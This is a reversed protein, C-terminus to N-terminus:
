SRGGVHIFTDVRLGLPIQQGADLEILTELIKTDVRETPEDTRINKRGLIEGIRVVRGTFKRDGYAEATVHATQGVAIRAVDTEDVDARIRLKSIDGLVVVPDDAGAQVSEGSRLKRRLVVGDIPSQIVTKALMAEAEALQAKARELEAEARKRDEVRFGEDTLSAREQVATLRAAAVNYERDASDFETRSIAGRALMSERRDRELKANALIAEAERVLAITERKEQGRNGNAIREVEAERHRIDAQALAVRAAYDGNVLVALVQGKKVKDGEDVLVQALKGDLESGIKLEESAPEVRGAAVVFPSNRLGKTAREYGGEEPVDAVAAARSSRAHWLGFAAISALLLVLISKRNM